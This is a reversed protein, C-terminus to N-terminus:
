PAQKEQGPLVDPPSQDPHDKMWQQWPADRFVMRFGRRTNVFTTKAVDLEEYPFVHQAAPNRPDDAFTTYHVDGNLFWYDTVAQTTGNKRYLLIEESPEGAYLYRPAEYPTLAAFNEYGYGYFTSPYCNYGWSWIEGVAPACTPWWVGNLGYGVPFRYLPVFIGFRRGGFGRGLRPVFHARLPAIGFRPGAGFHPGRVGARAMPPMMVRPPVARPAAVHGRPGAPVGRPAQAVATQACALSLACACLVLMKRINSGRVSPVKNGM